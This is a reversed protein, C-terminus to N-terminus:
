LRFGGAVSVLNGVPMYSSSIRARRNTGWVEDQADAPFLALQWAHAAIVGLVWATSPCAAALEAVVDFFDNPHAELGGFRRPKLLDFFGVAELEDITETPIMREREARAAREVLAPGIARARMVLPSIAGSV